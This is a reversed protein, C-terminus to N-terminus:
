ALYEYCDGKKIIKVYKENSQLELLFKYATGKM